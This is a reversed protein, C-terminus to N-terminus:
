GTMRGPMFAKVKEISPLSMVSPKRGVEVRVYWYREGNVECTTLRKQWLLLEALVDCVEDKRLRTVSIIEKQTRAGHKIAACVRDTPALGRLRRRLQRASRSSEVFKVIKPHRQCYERLVQRQRQGKKNICSRCRTNKADMAGRDVNAANRGFESIDRPGCDPCVKIQSM